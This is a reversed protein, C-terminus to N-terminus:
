ERGALFDSEKQVKRVNLKHVLWYMPSTIIVVGLLIGAILSLTAIPETHRFLSTKFWIEALGNIGFVTTIIYFYKWLTAERKITSNESPMIYEVTKGALLIFLTKDSISGLSINENEVLGKLLLSNQLHKISKVEFEVSNPRKSKVYKVFLKGDEFVLEFEGSIVSFVLHSNKLYEVQLRKYRSAEISESLDSLTKYKQMDRSNATLKINQSDQIVLTTDLNTKEYVSNTFHTTGQTYIANIDSFNIVKDGYTFFDNKLKYEINEKKFFM